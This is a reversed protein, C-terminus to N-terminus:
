KENKNLLKLYMKKLSDEFFTDAEILNDNYCTYWKNNSWFLKLYSNDIIKPINDIYNESSWSDIDDDVVDEVFINEDNSFQGVLFDSEDIIM